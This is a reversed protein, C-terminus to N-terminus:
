AQTVFYMEIAGKGKVEIKGRYEFSYASSDKLHEYTNQSVNVRGVEGSSEMRSATNVTDGWIDYQFKKIGVIGAVVPGTHVGIRIEFFPLDIAAKRIKTKAIIKAMELAANVVDHAHTNNPSPLGGAAMYSDGITKIKEIGYKECIEDFASFCEHLDAVLEKATVRSSLATFGKFDTFLVTAQDILQADSHGKQKLERATEQPLINLLLQESIEKEKGIKNRQIFFVGAFLLVISFGGIFGNRMLKQRRMEQETLADKQDQSAKALAEKKDFDYQMEIQTLKKTNEANFMSDRFVVFQEYYTLAEATNGTSKHAQYLCECAALQEQLTEIESAVALAEKCNAVALKYQEKKWYSKGISILSATTGIKYGLERSLELSQESFALSQNFDGLLYYVDAISKLTSAIAPKEELDQYYKLAENLFSLAENYNKLKGYTDGLNALIAASLTLNGISKAVALSEKYNNISKQYEGQASYVGAMNFFTVAVYTKDEIANRESLARLANQYYELAKPYYNQRMYVVGINLYFKWKVNTLNYKESIALGKEYVEISEKHRGRNLYINGTNKLNNAIGEQYHIEEALALSQNLIQLAISDNRPIYYFGKYNMANVMYKPLNHEKAYDYAVDLLLLASDPNSNIFGTITFEELALLRISDAQHNDQWINWLSDLNQGTLCAAQILLVLLPLLTNIRYQIRKM